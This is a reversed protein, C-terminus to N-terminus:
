GKRATFTGEGGGALVRGVVTGDAQLTAIVSAPDGNAQVDITVTSGEVKVGTVPMEGMGNEVVKAHWVGDAGHTLDLTGAYTEGGLQAGFVWHGVLAAAPDVAPKATAAGAAPTPVAPPTSAVGGCAAPLLALALLWPAPLNGGRM